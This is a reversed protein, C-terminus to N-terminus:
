YDIHPNRAIIELLHSCRIIDILGKGVIIKKNNERRAKVLNDGLQGIWHDIVVLELRYKYEKKEATKILSNLRRKIKRNATIQTAIKKKLNLKDALIRQFKEIKKSM